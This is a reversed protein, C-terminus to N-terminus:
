LNRAGSELPLFDIEIYAGMFNGNATFQPIGKVVDMAQQHVHGTFIGLINSASFVENYYDMTVKTHGEVPWRERRELEYSKDTAAGWSPNGCGYGGSRGPAYMPIHMMIIVPDDGRIHKRFFELQEPMIEYTSNDIALVNIGKVNYSAMLPDNGQYLPSLRKNTWTDRLKQRSGEMGEYHWDHNGAVFLYPIGAENLKKYVWEIAEESPFSFIDGTM